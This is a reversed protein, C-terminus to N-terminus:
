FEDKLKNLNMKKRLTKKESRYKKMQLIEEKAKLSRKRNKRRIKELRQIEKLDAERQKQEIKKLLLWRAKYRNLAQSREEQCKVIISTPLHHLQVCTAVKNVNQGGPGSAHIFTEEIDKEYIKLQAMRQVLAKEKESSVGFQSM